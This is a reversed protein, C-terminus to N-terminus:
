QEQAASIYIYRIEAPIFLKITIKIKVDKIWILLLKENKILGHRSFNTERFDHQRSFIKELLSWWFYTKSYSFFSPQIINNSTIWNRCM